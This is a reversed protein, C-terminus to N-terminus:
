GECEIDAYEILNRAAKIYKERLKHFKVDKIEDFSTYHRFAYDFGESEVIDNVISKEDDTM